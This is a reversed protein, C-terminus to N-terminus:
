DKIEDDQNSETIEIDYYKESSVGGDLNDKYYSTPIVFGKSAGITTLKRHKIKIM